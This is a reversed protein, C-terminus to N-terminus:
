PMLTVRQQCRAGGPHAPAASSLHRPLSALVSSGFRDLPQVSTDVLLRRHNIHRLLVQQFHGDVAM